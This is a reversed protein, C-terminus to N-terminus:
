KYNPKYILSRHIYKPPTYLRDGHKLFNKKIIQGKDNFCKCKILGGNTAIFKYNKDERLIIGFTFPHFYAKKVISVKKLYIKKKNFFTSAGQYPDDFADCFLVLSDISWDWNILGNYKTNLRPYYERNLYSKKFLKISFEKENFFKSFIKKIFKKGEIEYLNFYNQPTPKRNKIKFKKSYLIQGQDLNKTIKQLYIGCEKSKNLIQWTFHAGGMYKPLPICNINFMKQKFKKLIESKFIWSPGFCIAINNTSDTLLKIFNKDKNINKSVHIKYKKDKLQRLFNHNKYKEKSHRKSLIVYFSKKNKKLIDCAHLLLSGNGILFFNTNKKALIM